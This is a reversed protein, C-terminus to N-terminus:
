YLRVRNIDICGFHVIYTCLVIESRRAHANRPFTIFPSLVTTQQRVEEVYDRGDWKGKM